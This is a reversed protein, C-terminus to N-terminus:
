WFEALSMGYSPLGGCLWATAMVFHPASGPLHCPNKPAIQRAPPQLSGDGPTRARRSIAEAYESAEDPQDPPGHRAITLDRHSSLPTLPHQLRQYRQRRQCAVRHHGGGGRIGPLCT